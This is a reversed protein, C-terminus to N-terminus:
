LVLRSITNKQIKQIKQSEQGDFVYLYTIYQAKMEADFQIIKLRRFDLNILPKQHYNMMNEMSPGVWYYLLISLDVSVTGKLSKMPLVIGIADKILEYFGKIPGM